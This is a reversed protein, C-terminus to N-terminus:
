RGCPGRTSTGPKSSPAPCVTSSLRKKELTGIPRDGSFASCYRRASVITRYYVGNTRGPFGLPPQARARGWNREAKSTFASPISSPADPREADALRTVAVGPGRQRAPIPCLLALAQCAGWSHGFWRREPPRTWRSKGVCKM